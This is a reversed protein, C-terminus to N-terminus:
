PVGLTEYIHKPIRVYYTVDGKDGRQKRVKTIMRKVVM